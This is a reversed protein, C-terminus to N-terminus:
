QEQLREAAYGGVSVWHWEGDPERVLVGKWEMAVILNGSAPDRVADEPGAPTGYNSYWSGSYHEDAARVYRKSLYQEVEWTRGEDTSREIRDGPTFRYFEGPEEGAMLWSASTSSHCEFDPLSDDRDRSDYYNGAAREWTLGGDDSVFVSSIIGDWYAIAYVRDDEVHLCSIGPDMPGSNAVTALAALAIFFAARGPTPAGQQRAGESRWLLWAGWLAPLTLLDTPDRLLISEWGFIGAFLSRFAAHAAPLTKVAAFVTGVALISLGGVWADRRPWSLPLLWALLPAVVFPMFFLWVADGLKGTLWSPHAWRLWHDNVLLVVVAALVAPHAAVRLARGVAAKRTEVETHM